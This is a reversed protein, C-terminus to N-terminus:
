TSQLRGACGPLSIPQPVNLLEKAKQQIFTLKQEKKHTNMDLCNIKVHRFM